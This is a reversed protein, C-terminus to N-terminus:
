NYLSFNQMWVLHLIRQTLVPLHTYYFHGRIHGTEYIYGLSLREVILWWLNRQFLYKQIKRLVANYLFRTKKELNSCAIFLLCNLVYIVNWFEEWIFVLELLLLLAGIISLLHFVALCTLSWKRTISLKWWYLDYM